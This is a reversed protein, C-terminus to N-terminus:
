SARQFCISRTFVSDLELTKLLEGYVKRFEVERKRGPPMAYLSDVRRHLLAELKSKDYVARAVAQEVLIPDYGIKM